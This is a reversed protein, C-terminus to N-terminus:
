KTYQVVRKQNYKSGIEVTEDRAVGGRFFDNSKINFTESHAM